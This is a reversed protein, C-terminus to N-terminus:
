IISKSVNFLSVLILICSTPLSFLIFLMFGIAVCPRTNMLISQLMGVVECVDSEYNTYYKKEWEMWNKPPEYNREQM